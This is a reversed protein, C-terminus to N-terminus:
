PALDLQRVRNRHALQYAIVDVCAKCRATRAQDFPLHWMKPWTFANKGCATLNTGMQKAHAISGRTRGAPGVAGPGTTAEFQETTFWHVRVAGRM